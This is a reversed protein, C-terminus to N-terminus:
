ICITVWTVEKAFLYFLKKSLTTVSFYDFGSFHNCFLHHEKIASDYNGKVKKATHPSVGLYECRRVKFHRKTKGFYTANCGDCKFTYTVGSLLFVPIRDKFAFVILKCKTHFVIRFNCHHLKNKIVCNIKTCIQPSLKDFDSIAIMLDKKPVTSVVIKPTLVRDM